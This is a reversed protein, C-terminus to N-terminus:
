HGKGTSVKRCTVLLLDHQSDLLEPVEAFAEVLGFCSQCSAFDWTGQVNDGDLRQLVPLALGWVGGFHCGELVALEAVLELRGHGVAAM